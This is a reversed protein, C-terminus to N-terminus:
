LAEFEKELEAIRSIFYNLLVTRVEGMDCNRIWFRRETSEGIYNSESWSIQIESGTKSISDRAKKFFELQEQIEQAKEFKEKKMIEVVKDSKNEPFDLFSVGEIKSNIEVLRYIDRVISVPFDIVELDPIEFKPLGIISYPTKLFKESESQKNPCFDQIPCSKCKSSTIGLLDAAM